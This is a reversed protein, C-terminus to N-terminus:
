DRKKDEANEKRTGYSLNLAENCQSGKNGHRVQQGKPRPGIFTLAVLEHVYHHEHKGDVTTGVHWYGNSLSQNLIRGKFTFNRSCKQVIVRSVSRIRGLDSAQYFNEYGPIDKWTEGDLCYVHEGTDCFSWEHGGATKQKGNCVNHIGSITTDNQRAADSVSEFVVGDGRKVSRGRPTYGDRRTDASNEKHTGYRLNLADDCQRGKAGHLVIPKDDTPPGIFTLAILQHVYWSVSKGDKQLSVTRGNSCPRQSLTRGKRTRLRGSDTETTNDVSRIGGGLNSAQYGEYGPIDRWEEITLDTPEFM